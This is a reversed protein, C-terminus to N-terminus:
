AAWTSVHTEGSELDHVLVRHHNTDAVYVLSGQHSLGRPEELAFDASWELAAV